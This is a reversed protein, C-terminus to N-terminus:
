PKPEQEANGVFGKGHAMPQPQLVVGNESKQKYYNVTRAILLSGVLAPTFWGITETWAPAGDPVIRNANNVLFATFTAIYSGGMRTIHHYFWHMKEPRKTFSKADYWANKFTLFGFVTFLIAVVSFGNTLLYAGFGLMAVSVTLTLYTLLKDIMQPKQKKQKAARWGTLSQYLSLVAIGILFLRMMKFPQLVCLLFATAMGVMMCYVYILGARKHIRTGKSFFMPILGVTLATFGAVIHASLLVLLLTKM